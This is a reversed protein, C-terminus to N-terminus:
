VTQSAFFTIVFPTDKPEASETYFSVNIVTKSIPILLAFKIIIKGVYSFYYFRYRKYESM